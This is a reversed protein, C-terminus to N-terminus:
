SSSSRRRTTSTSRTPRTPASSRSTPEGPVHRGSARHRCRLALDARHVVAGDQPRHRVVRVEPRRRGRCRRPAGEAPDASFVVLKGDKEGIPVLFFTAPSASTSGSPSSPTSRPPARTASRCGARRRWRGPTSPAVSATGRSCCSGSSRAPRRQRRRSRRRWGSVMSTAPSWWARASRSASRSAPARHSRRRPARLRCRALRTQRPSEYRWRRTGETTRIRLRGADAPRATRRSRVPEQRRQFESRTVFKTPDIEIVARELEEFRDLQVADVVDMPPTRRGADRRRDRAARCADIREALTKELREMEIRVLMAEGIATSMKEKLEDLEESDIQNMEEVCRRSGTTSRSSVRTSAQCGITSPSSRPTSAPASAASTPTSRPSGRARLGGQDPERRGACARQIPGRHRSLRTRGDARDRDPDPPDREDVRRVASHADVPTGRRQDAAAREARRHAAGDGPTMENFYTVM